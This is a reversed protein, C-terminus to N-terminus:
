GPSNIEIEAEEGDNLTALFAKLSKPSCFDGWCGHYDFDTIEGILCYKKRSM